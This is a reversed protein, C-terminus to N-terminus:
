QKQYEDIWNLVESKFRRSNVDFIIDKCEPNLIEDLVIM